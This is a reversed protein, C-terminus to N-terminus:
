TKKLPYQKIKLKTQNENQEQIIAIPEEPTQM